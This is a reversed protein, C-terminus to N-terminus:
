FSVFFLPFNVYWMNTRKVQVKPPSYEEQTCGSASSFTKVQVLICAINECRTEVYRKKTFVAHPLFISSIIFLFLMKSFTISVLKLVDRNIIHSLKKKVYNCM